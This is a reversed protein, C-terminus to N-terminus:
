LPSISSSSPNAKHQYSNPRCVQHEMIKRTMHMSIINPFTVRAKRQPLIKIKNWPNMRKVKFHSILPNVFSFLVPVYEVWNEDDDGASEVVDDAEDGEAGRGMSQAAEHARKLEARADELEIRALASVRELEKDDIVYKSPHNAATGRKVRVFCILVGSGGHLM